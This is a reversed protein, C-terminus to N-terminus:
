GKAKLIALEPTSVPHTFFPYNTTKLLKFASFPKTTIARVDATKNELTQQLSM